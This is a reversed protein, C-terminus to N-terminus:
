RGQIRHKMEQLRARQEPTLMNKIRVLLTIQTRKIERELSLVRDLQAQVRQEDVRDQTLLSGLTEMESQLRWQLDTFQSQAKHIEAIIFSKQDDTLAIAQQNQMVLEPPFLADGVPDSPHQAGLPTALFFFLIAGAAQVKARTTM